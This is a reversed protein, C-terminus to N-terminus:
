QELNSSYTATDGHFSVTQCLMESLHPEVEKNTELGGQYDKHNDNNRDRLPLGRAAQCYCENSGDAQGGDEM